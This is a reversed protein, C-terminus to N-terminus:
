IWSFTNWWQISVSRIFVINRMQLFFLCFCEEYMNLNLHKWLKFDIKMKFNMAIVTNSM